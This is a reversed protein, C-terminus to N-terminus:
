LLYNIIIIKYDIKDLDKIFISSIDSLTCKIEQVCLIDPKENNLIELIIGKRIAARFGAVNWSIIKTMIDLFLILNVNKVHPIIIFKIQTILLTKTITSDFLSLFFM